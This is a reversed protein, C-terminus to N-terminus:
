YAILYDGAIDIPRYSRPQALADLLIGVKKLSGAGFEVLEVDPGILSAMEGAHAELLGIETRTPYYEPLECIADFLRSGEDDYFYKSPLAKPSKKFGAVLDRAFEDSQASATEAYAVQANM